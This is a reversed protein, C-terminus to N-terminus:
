VNPTNPRGGEEAKAVKNIAQVLAAQQVPPPATPAQEAPAKATRSKARKLETTIDELFNKALDLVDLPDPTADGLDKLSFRQFSLLAALADGASWDLPLPTKISVASAEIQVVPTEIQVASVGIPAVPTEIM